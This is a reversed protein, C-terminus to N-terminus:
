TLLLSSPAETRCVTLASHLMAMPRIYCQLYLHPLVLSSWPTDKDVLASCLPIMGLAPAMESQLTRPIFYHLHESAGPTVVHLEHPAM